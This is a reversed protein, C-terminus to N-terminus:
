NRKYGLSLVKLPNAPLSASISSSTQCGEEYMATFARSFYYKIGNRLRPQVLCLEQPISVWRYACCEPKRVGDGDIFTSACSLVSPQIPVNLVALFLYLPAGDCETRIPHTLKWTEFRINTEEWCERIAAQLPTEGKQIHGKPLELMPHPWKASPTPQELLAYGGYKIVIGARANIDGARTETITM